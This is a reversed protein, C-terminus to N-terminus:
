ARALGACLSGVEASRTPDQSAIEQLLICIISANKLSVSTFSRKFENWSTENNIIRRIVLAFWDRAQKMLKPAVEDLAQLTVVTDFRELIHLLGWMVEIFDFDCSDDFALYLESLHEQVESKPLRSLEVLANHFAQADYESQMLRTKHLLEVISEVSM